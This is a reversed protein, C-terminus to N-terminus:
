FLSFILLLNLTLMFIGFFMLFYSLYMPHRVFSYAGKTTLKEPVRWSTAHIGRSIRGWDALLVGSLLLIAGFLQM